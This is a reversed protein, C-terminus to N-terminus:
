ARTRKQEKPIRFFFTSGRGEISQVGISGGHQEVIAKSIALGLGTGEVTEKGPREIREFRQFIREQQDAPIGPGSDSVRVELDKGLDATSVKVEGGKQSFKLANSILNVIVQLLREEDGVLALDAEEVSLKFGDRVAIPEVADIARDVVDQIHIKSFRMELKGANMKEIDLLGNILTMVYALNKRADGVRQTAKETLDGFAGRCLMDLSLEVSTLPTRLDHSIM